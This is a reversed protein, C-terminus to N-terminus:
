LATLSLPRTGPPSALPPSPRSRPARPSPSPSRALPPSELAPPPSAGHAALLRCPLAVVRRPTGLASARLSLRRPTSALPGADMRLSRRPPVLLGSDLCVRRAAGAGTGVAPGAACRRHQHELKRRPGAPHGHRYVAGPGARRLGGTQRHREHKSGHTIRFSIVDHDGPQQGRL